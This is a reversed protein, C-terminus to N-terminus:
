GLPRIALRIPKHEIAHQVANEIEDLPFSAEVLDAFPFRDGYELLFAVAKQLDQPAYNHVGRVTLCRRIIQEPDLRIAETPMVAGVLVLSGGIDTASFGAETLAPSGTLELVRDFSARSRAELKETLAAADDIRITSSAGFELARELRRADRDVVVVEAAGEARAIASATLGLMGAGLILVRSGAIEGAARYAACITATACNAPCLIEDRAAQHEGAEPLKVVASGERLLVYEALGGALGQRGVALAHGYKALQTCKQPLGSQCRQCANCSVVVSWTVRDGPSLPMGSLERMPTAGVAVVQGIIEHGLISPTPEKRAGTFTHLDSGCLTCCDIRVLVEGEAPRSLELEQLQVKGAGIFVAARCTTPLDTKMQSM